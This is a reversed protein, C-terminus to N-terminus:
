VRLRTMVAEVFEAFTPLDLCSPATLRTSAQTETNVLEVAFAREPASSYVVRLHRTSDVQVKRLMSAARLLRGRQYEPGRM